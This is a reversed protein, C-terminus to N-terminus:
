QLGRRRANERQVEERYAGPVLILFLYWWAGIPAAALLTWAPSGRSLACVGGVVAAGTLLITWPQCWPPKSEFFEASLEEAAGEPVRSGSSGTEEAAPPTAQSAPRAHRTVAPVWHVLM